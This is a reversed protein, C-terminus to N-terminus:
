QVRNGFEIESQPYPLVYVNDGVTGTYGPVTTLGLRKYFFFLQGESVYEKRYEKMIEENVQEPTATAAINQAIGRSARVKNLYEIAKPLNASVYQEAAIYYMEPLKILPVINYYSPRNLQRLKISVLGRTQSSLLTNYRIDAAGIAPIQTEYVSQAFQPAMFLAFTNAANSADLYSNIIDAFGAVNLNFLHEPYLVPDSAAETSVILRAPSDKIVEESAVAAAAANQTGGVWRLVRAQLAKVAYYNMRQERNNFFGDRNVNAYYSAPKKPNSYAPDEKLLESAAQLDALLLSLTQQYSVQPTLDKTFETVYPITLKTALDTRAALNGHGYVRMLDFHMFARLGLLEGKIISHSIPNLVSKNKDINNLANNINAIVNYGKNWIGDVVPISRITRYSNNQLDAYAANAPLAAYQHSLLDMASWTMEKAYLGPDTMGIYVGILADKFGSETKFQDDSRIETNSTVDLWGKKCSTACAAVTLLAIIYKYNPKM